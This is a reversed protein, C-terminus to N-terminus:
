KVKLLTKGSCSEVSIDVIDVEYKAAIRRIEKEVNERVISSTSINVLGDESLEVEVLSRELYVLSRVLGHIFDLIHYPILHPKHDNAQEM